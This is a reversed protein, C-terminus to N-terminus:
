QSLVDVFSCCLLFLLIFLTSLAIFMLRMVRVLEICGALVVAVLLEVELVGTVFEYCIEELFPLAVPPLLVELLLTLEFYVLKLMKVGFPGFIMLPLGPRLTGLPLFLMVLFLVLCMEIFMGSTRCLGLPLRLLGILLTWGVHLGFASVLLRALLM